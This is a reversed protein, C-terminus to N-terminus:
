HDMRALLIALMAVNIRVGDFAGPFVHKCPAVTRVVREDERNANMGLDRTARVNQHHMLPENLPDIPM